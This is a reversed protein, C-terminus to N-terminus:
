KQCPIQLPRVESTSEMRSATNVSDGFLCYRPMKQGVVGACVAGSHAGVRIQIGKGTSPDKLGQICQVMDLAMECIKEAHHTTKEPAGAVIMYADGITEVKLSHISYFIFFIFFLLTNVFACRDM